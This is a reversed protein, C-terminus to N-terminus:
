QSEGVIRVGHRKHTL